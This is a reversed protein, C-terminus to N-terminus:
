ILGGVLLNKKKKRKEESPYQTPLRGFRFKMIREMERGARAYKALERLAVSDEKINNEVKLDELEILVVAPVYKVRNRSKM